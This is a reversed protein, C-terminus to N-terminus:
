ASFTQRVCFERLFDDLLFLFRNVANLLLSLPDHGSRCCGKSGRARRRARSRKYRAKTFAVLDSAKKSKKEGRGDNDDGNKEDILKPDIGNQRAVFKPKMKKDSLHPIWDEVLITRKGEDVSRDIVEATAKNIATGRPMPAAMKRASSAGGRMESVRCNKM